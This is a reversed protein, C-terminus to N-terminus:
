VSSCTQMQGYRMIVKNRSQNKKESHDDTTHSLLHLSHKTFDMFDGYLFILAFTLVGKLPPVIDCNNPQASAPIVITVRTM